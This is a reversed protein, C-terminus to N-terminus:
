HIKNQRWKEKNQGKGTYIEQTNRIKHSKM